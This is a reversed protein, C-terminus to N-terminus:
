KAVRLTTPGNLTLFPKLKNYTKRGIGKIRMLHLPDAFQRKSRYAVIREATVPGIGPLMEWQTQTADNMNLQGELQPSAFLSIPAPMSEVAAQAPSGLLGTLALSAATITKVFTHKSM